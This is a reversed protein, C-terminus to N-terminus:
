PAVPSTRRDNSVACAVKPSAQHAGRAGCPNLNPNGYRLVIGDRRACALCAERDGRVHAGDGQAM